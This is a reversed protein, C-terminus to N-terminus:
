AFPATRSLQSSAVSRFEGLRDLLPRAELRRLIDGAESAAAEALPHAGLLLVMDLDCLAIGLPTDLARWARIATDYRAAAEDIRGNLAAIGAETTERTAGMMRGRFAGMAVFASSAREPDRLWLGARGLIQLASPSNIGSPDAAVAAEAGRYAAEIDGTVLSVLARHWLYTARRHIYESTSCQEDVRDFIRMSEAPDGTLGTLLAVCSDRFFQWVDDSSRSLADVEAIAARADDWEGLLTAFEAANLLNVMEVPRNGARRAVPVARIAAVLSERPEDDTSFVGLATLGQAQRVLLGASEAIAVAGRMLILAERHRGLNFLAGAKCAIAESLLDPDDLQEAVVLAREAWELSREPQGHQVELDALSAALKARVWPDAHEGISEFMQAVREIAETIRGVGRGLAEAMRAMARGAADDDGSAQFDAIAREYLAIAREFAGRRAPCGPRRARLARRPEGGPEAVELAQEFYSLALEPTGLSLARRGAETLADRARAALADREPGDPSARHAELYHAAVVGALEDDALSEFYHAASLHKARREKRALTGYAVERILGQLFGYQGREPSRPDNDVVLLERRVLNRLAAELEDRDRETIAALSEITFSKGLVSADQLLSRDAPPIADLRSAILAQLTEPVELESLEGSVDFAGDTEVLYGKAVLMRVTEVAYLPVGEARELVADAFRDPLDRVLGGLLEWMAEKSLPDLHLAVFNRQGAGLDPTSRSTRAQRPHHRPNAQEAVVRPDIRHFRDVRRRGM